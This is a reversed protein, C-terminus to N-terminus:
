NIVPGAGTVDCPLVTASIIIADGVGPDSDYVDGSSGNNSKFYVKFKLTMINKANVEITGTGSNLEGGYANGTGNDTAAIYNNAVALEPRSSILTLVNAPAAAGNINSLEFEGNSRVLGIDSGLGVFHLRPFNVARDFTITLDSVYVRSNTAIGAAALAPTGIFLYAGFTDTATFNPSIGTGVTTAGSSTYWTPSFPGPALLPPFSSNINAPGGGNGGFVINSNGTPTTISNTGKFQSNSITFKVALASSPATFTTGTPNDTNLLFNFNATELVPGKANNTYSSRNLELDQQAFVLNQAFCLFILM